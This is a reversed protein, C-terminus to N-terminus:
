DGDNDNFKLTAGLVAIVETALIRKLEKVAEHAAALEPRRDLLAQAYPRPIAEVAALAGALADRVARDTAPARAAILRGIGQDGTEGIAGVYVNRIGRLAGLMDAISNDSPGSEELEPEPTGGSALGIPKGLRTNAVTEALFVCENVVTDIVSKITPYTANASGPGSLQSSYADTWAVELQGMKRDLNRALAVVLAGRRAALGGGLFSDVVGADDGPLFMLYEIAHFGKKNAGLNEVFVEDLAATGALEVDIKAPDIPSQDIAVALRLDTAPGFAFAETEKWAARATRWAQQADALRALTPTDVFREVATPLPHAAAASRLLSPVVVDNVLGRAVTRREGDGLPV